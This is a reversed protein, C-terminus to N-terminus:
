TVVLGKIKERLTKKEANKAIRELTKEKNLEYDKTGALEEPNKKLEVPDLVQIKSIDENKGGHIMLTIVTKLLKQLM